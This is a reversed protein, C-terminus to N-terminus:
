AAVACVMNTSLRKHSLLKKQATGDDEQINRLQLRNDYEHWKSGFLDISLQKVFTM